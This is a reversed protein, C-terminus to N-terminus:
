LLSVLSSPHHQSSLVGQLLPKEVESLFLFQFIADSVTICVCVSPILALPYSKTVRIVCHPSLADLTIGRRDM